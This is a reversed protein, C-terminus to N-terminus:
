IRAGEGEANRHGIAARGNRRPKKLLHSQNVLGAVKGFDVVDGITACQYLECYIGGVLSM